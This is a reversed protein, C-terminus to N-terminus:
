ARFNEPLRLLCARVESKTGPMEGMNEWRETAPDYRHILECESYDAQSYGGLIYLKDELVASAAGVHPMPLPAISYWCDWEPSYMECSLQNSCDGNEEGHVGGAVYLYDGVSEMRHQARNQPMDALYTTGREPHYLFMSVLSQYECNFGGSIYIDGGWVSAAHSSM